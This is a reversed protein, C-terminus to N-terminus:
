TEEEGAVMNESTVFLHQRATFVDRATEFLINDPLSDWTLSCNAAGAM